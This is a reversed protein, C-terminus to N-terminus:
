LISVFGTKLTDFLVETFSFDLFLKLLILFQDTKSSQVQMCM